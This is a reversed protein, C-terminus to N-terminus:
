RRIARETRQEPALVLRGLGLRLDGGLRIGGRIQGQGFGSSRAPQGRATEGRFWPGPILPRVAIRGLDIRVGPATPDVM